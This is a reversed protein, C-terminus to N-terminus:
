CGVKLLCTLRVPYRELSKGQANISKIFALLEQHNVLHKFDDVGTLVISELKTIDVEQISTEPICPLGAEGKVM